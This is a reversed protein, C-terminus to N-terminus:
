FSLTFTNTYGTYILVGHALIDRGILCQIHQGQLPAEVAICSDVIVNNPFLVALEYQHCLVPATTSPTKIATVGVPQIGLAQIVNPNVVTGSAGTDIMATVKVPEPIPQRKKKLIEQLSRSVWLQIEVIPGNAVMNPIQATFSPM